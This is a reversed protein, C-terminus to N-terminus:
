LLAAKLCGWAQWKNAAQEKVEKLIEQAIFTFVTVVM